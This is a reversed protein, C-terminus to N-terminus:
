PKPVLLKPNSLDANSLTVSWYGTWPELDDGTNVQTYSSGNYTWLQNDVINQTDATALDCGSACPDTDTLVRVNDLTQRTKFPYGILNWQNSATQTALPIEFCAKATSLCEKPHLHTVSGPLSNAPLDLTTDNGSRQIIWYGLGQSLTDTLGLKVYASGSYSYLVWDTDYTGTINDSFIAAVTNNSGPDCPLSIQRWQDTPLVYTSNCSLDFTYVSGSNDDKSAGVLVTSGSLAISEGFNEREAAGSAALIARQSWHGSGDDMFVYAAGVYASGTDSDDSTGVLATGGSLAVSSGFIDDAVRHSATLKAQQTWNGNGDDSFVYAAGFDLRRDIGGEREAGVLAIGGSLAVSGGFFDGVEADSATLEAQQTWNGSGDNSFVYASGSFFGTGVLATGGSLAVSHGFKDDAAANSAVLKAQQVWNGSGDDSFIYASGSKNAGDNDGLPAGVLATGSSLAVSYGFNDGTTADSAVLEAQQVWNGSGNRKFIYPGVMATGDSLAVPYGSIGSSATLKDQQIWIGDDDKLFVYAAGGSQNTGSVLALNRSIAISRGFRDGAAADSVTLKDEEVLLIDGEVLFPDITIPYVADMVAVQLQLTKEKLQLSANLDRGKADWAKLGEYRLKKGQPTILLLTKGKDILQPKVDGGLAFQLVLQEKALPKDLTFGQELGKPDNIYWERITGRDYILRNDKIQVTPKSVPKLQGPAGLQTLEMSLRWDDKLAHATIGKGDFDVSLHNNTNVARWHTPKGKEEIVEIQHRAQQYAAQLGTPMETTPKAFLIIPALLFATFLGIVRLSLM